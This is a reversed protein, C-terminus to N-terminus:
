FSKLKNIDYGSEREDFYHEDEDYLMIEWDVNNCCGSIKKELDILKRWQLCKPVKYTSAVEIKMYYNVLDSGEKEIAKKYIPCGIVQLFYYFNVTGIEESKNCIVLMSDIEPITYGKGKLKSTSSKLFSYEKPYVNKLSDSLELASLFFEAQLPAIGMYDVGWYPRELSVREEEVALLIGDIYNNWNEESVKNTSLLEYLEKLSHAYEYLNMNRLDMLISKKIPESGMSFYKNTKYCNDIGVIEYRQSYTDTLLLALTIILALKKM